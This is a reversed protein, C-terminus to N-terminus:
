RVYFILSLQAGLRFRGWDEVPVGGVNFSQRIAMWEASAGAAFGIRRGLRLRLEPGLSLSPLGLTATGTSVGAAFGEARLLHSGLALQMGLQLTGTSRAGFGAGVFTDSVHVRLGPKTAVNDTWLQGFLRVDMELPASALLCSAGLSLGSQTSQLGAGSLVGGLELALHRSEETTVPAPSKTSKQALPPPSAAPGLLPAENSLSQEIIESAKLALTRDVDPTDAQAPLRAVELVARGARAGVVYLAFVRTGDALAVSELWLAFDVHQSRTLETALAVRSPAPVAPLLAQSLEVRATGRLHLRLAEVLTPRPREEVPSLVLVRAEALAHHSECLVALGCLLALWCLALARKM